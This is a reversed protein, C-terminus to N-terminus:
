EKVEKMVSYFLALYFTTLMSAIIILGFELDTLIYLVVILPSSILFLGLMLCVVDKVLKM